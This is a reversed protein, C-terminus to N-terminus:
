RKQEWQLDSGMDERKGSEGETQTKSKRSSVCKRDVKGGEREM